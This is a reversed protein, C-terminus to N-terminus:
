PAVALTHVGARLGVGVNSRADPGRASQRIAQACTPGSRLVARQQTAPLPARRSRRRSRRVEEEVAAVAMVWRWERWWRWGGGRRRGDDSGGEGEDGGCGGAGLGGGGGCGGDSGQLRQRRAARAVTVRAEVVGEATGCGDYGDDGCRRRQRRRRRRQWWRECRRGGRGGAEKGVGGGGGGGGSDGGGRRGGDGDGSDGGGEDGDRVWEAAGGGHRRLWWWQNGGGGSWAAAGQWCSRRWRLWLRWWQRDRAERGRGGGEAASLVAVATEGGVAAGRLTAPAATVCCTPRRGCASRSGRHRLHASALRPRQRRPAPRRRRPEACATTARRLREFQAARRWPAHAGVARESRASLVRARASAWVLARM